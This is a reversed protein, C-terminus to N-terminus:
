AVTSTKSNTDKAETWVYVQVTYSYPTELLDALLDKYAGRVLTTKGNVVVVDEYSKAQHSYREPTFFARTFDGNHTNNNQALEGSYFFNAGEYSQLSLEGFVFDRQPIITALFNNPTSVTPYTGSIWKYGMEVGIINKVARPIRLEFLVTQKPRTINFKSTIVTERKM